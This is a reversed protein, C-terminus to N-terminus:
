DIVEVSEDEDQDSNIDDDPPRDASEMWLQRVTKRTLSFSFGRRQLYGGLRRTFTPYDTGKLTPLHKRAARIANMEDDFGELAEEIAESGVGRQLLEARIRRAGQPHSRERNERWSRAFARDDLYGRSKLHLITAEAEQSAFRRSLRQRLESEGYSRHALLRLAANLAQSDQPNAAKRSPM